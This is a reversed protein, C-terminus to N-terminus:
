HRNIRSLKGDFRRTGTSQWDPESRGGASNTAETKTSMSFHANTIRPLELDFRTLGVARGAARTGRGDRGRTGAGDRHWNQAQLDGTDMRRFFLPRKQNSKTQGAKVQNSERKQGAQGNEAFRVARPRAGTAKATRHQVSSSTRGPAGTESGALGCSSPRAIALPAAM